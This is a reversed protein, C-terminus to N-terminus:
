SCVKRAIADLSQMIITFRTLSSNGQPSTRLYGTPSKEHPLLSQQSISKLFRQTAADSKHAIANRLLHAKQLEEKEGQTLLSFPKGDSFYLKAHRLAGNEFPLWETYEKGGFVVARAASKPFVRLLRTVPQGKSKLSGDFLGIFLGEILSEFGTFADLFLGAYVIEVDDKSLNGSPLLREVKVRTSELLALKTSFAKSIYFPQRPM